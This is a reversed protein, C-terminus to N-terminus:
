GLDYSPRLVKDRFEALLEECSSISPAYAFISQESSSSLLYSQLPEIVDSFVTEVTNGDLTGLSVKLLDPVM